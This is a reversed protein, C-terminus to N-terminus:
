TKPARAEEPKPNARERLIVIKTTYTRPRVRGYLAGPQEARSRADGQAGVLRNELLKNALREEDDRAVSRLMTPTKEKTDDGGWRQLGAVEQACPRFIAFVSLVQKSRMM